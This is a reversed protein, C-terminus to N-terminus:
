APRLSRWRDLLGLAAAQREVYADDFGDVAALQQVDLVDKPRWARLKMVVLDEATAFYTVRRTVPLEGRRRRGLAERLVPDTALMVDILLDGAAHEIVVRQLM